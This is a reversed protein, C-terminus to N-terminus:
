RKLGHSINQEELIDNKFYHVAMTQSVSKAYAAYNTNDPEKKLDAQIERWINADSRTLERSIKQEGDIKCGIFCRSPDNPVQRIHIDAIRTSCLRSKWNQFLEKMDAVKEVALPNFSFDVTGNTKKQSYSIFDTVQNDKDLLLLGKQANGLTDVPINMNMGYGEDKLIAKM